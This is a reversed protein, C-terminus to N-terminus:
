RTGQDSWCTDTLATTVRIYNRASIPCIKPTHLNSSLKSVCITATENKSRHFKNYVTLKNSFHQIKRVHTYIHTHVNREQLGLGDLSRAVNHTRHLILYTTNPLQPQITFLLNTVITKV